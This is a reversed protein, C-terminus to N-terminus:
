IPYGIGINTVKGRRFLWETHLGDWEGTRCSVRGRFVDCQARPFAARLQKMTSGIGIGGKTAAVPSKTEVDVVRRARRASTSLVRVTLGLKPYHMERYDWTNWPVRKVRAPAGLRRRMALETMGLNAGAIGVQPVVVVRVPSRQAANAASASGVAVAAVLVVILGIWRM